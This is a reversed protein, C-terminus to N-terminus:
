LITCVNLILQVNQSSIRLSTVEAIYVSIMGQVILVRRAESHYQHIYRGVCELDLPGKVGCVGGAEPM